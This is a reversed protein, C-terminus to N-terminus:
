MRNITLEDSVISVCVQPKTQICNNFTACYKKLLDVCSFFMSCYSMCVDFLMVDITTIKRLLINRKKM